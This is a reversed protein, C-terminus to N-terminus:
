VRNEYEDVYPKIREKFESDPLDDWYLSTIACICAALSDDDQNVPKQTVNELKYYDKLDQIKSM